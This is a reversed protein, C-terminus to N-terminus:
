DMIVKINGKNNNKVEYLAEDAFVMVEESKYREPHCTYFAGLSVGLPESAEDNITKLLDNLIKDVQPRQINLGLLVFEDGGLRAIFIQNETQYKLFIEGLEKIVNDGHHHGNTDNIDKFDDLDIMVLLVCEYENKGFIKDLHQNLSRRNPLGSLTDITAQTLYNKNSFKDYIKGNFAVLNYPLGILLSSLAIYVDTKLAEYRFFYCFVLFVLVSLIQSIIIERRKIIYISPLIVNFLLFFSAPMRTEATFVSIIIIFAMNLIMSIYTMYKSVRLSVIKKIEIYKSILYLAFMLVFMSVYTILLQTLMHPLHKFSIISMITFCLLVIMYCISLTLITKLNLTYLETENKDFFSHIQHQRKKMFVGEKVEM